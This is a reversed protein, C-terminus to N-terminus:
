ATRPAAVAEVTEEKETRIAGPYGHREALTAFAKLVAEIQRDSHAASVSCRLITKGDPTAPPILLNVFVGAELLDSWFRHGFRRGPMTVAIVPAPAAGLDFGLAVLGRYLRDVNAWLRDRGASDSAINALAQRAAAVIPPPLSATYLYARALMYLYATQPHNSVCFGGIVGASKSFTGVIVDVADEIGVEEAVGRAEAGYLGFSHAEDVMLLAGHRAKVAAIDRLPARDGLVSYLGEVVILTRAAPVPLEGLVRDLDATDSHAFSRVLAGSVACADYISAHCHSDIVIADEPGALGAIVGLNAMFGTSFIVAHRRRFFEALERELARHLGYTGSAVRSATTGTGHEELTVRAQEICRPDFNMGLYNNTGLLITDRGNVVAETASKLSGIEIDFPNHGGGTFRQLAVAMHELKDFLSGDGRSPAAEPVTM